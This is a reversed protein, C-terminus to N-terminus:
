RPKLLEIAGRYTMILDIDSLPTDSRRGWFYYGFSADFAGKKKMLYYDLWKVWFNTRQGFLLLFKRITRRESFAILFHCWSSALAVAPGVVPGGELEQFYRFLRRHGVHTFRIFDFPGAHVQQMFPTEAYNYGDQKLVRHIENVCRQPDLVHELVAQVIVFDISADRFPIDHSDLVLQTRDGFSVDTEILEIASDVLPEMGWNFVSGGIVLVRPRESRSRLHEAIKKYNQPSVFNMAFDPLLGTVFKKIGVKKGRDYFTDEGSSYDSIRFISNSENVLIPIGGVVPYTSQCTDSKCVFADGTQKLESRCKPCCLLAITEKQIKM